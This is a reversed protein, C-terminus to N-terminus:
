EANSNDELNNQIYNSKMGRIKLWDIIKQENIFHAQDQPRLHINVTEGVFKIKYKIRIIETHAWEAVRPDLHKLAEDLKAISEIMLVQAKHLEDVNVFSEKIADLLNQQM